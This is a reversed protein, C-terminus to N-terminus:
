SLFLSNLTRLKPLNDLSFRKDSPEYAWSPLNRTHVESWTVWGTIPFRSEYSYGHEKDLETMKGDEKNKFIRINSHTQGCLIKDKHASLIINSARGGVDAIHVDIKPIEIVNGEDTKADWRDYSWVGDNATSPFFYISIIIFKPYTMIGHLINEVEYETQEELRLGKLEQSRSGNNGFKHTCTSMTISIDLRTSNTIAKLTHEDWAPGTSTKRDKRKQSFWM